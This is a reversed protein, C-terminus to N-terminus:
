NVTEGFSSMGLSKAIERPTFEEVQELAYEAMSTAHAPNEIIALLAARFMVMTTMAAVHCIVFGEPDNNIEKISGQFAEELETRDIM